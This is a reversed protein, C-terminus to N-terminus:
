YVSYNYLFNDDSGVILHFNGQGSDLFGITFLSRGRLPFGDYIEGDSNFLYIISQDKSVVGIKRDDGSFYYYAPPHSVPMQFDHGFILSGDRSYVELRDNDLFIYDKYGDATVDQFEFFHGPSFDSISLPSTKGDLYLHWVTGTTDTVTLRPDSEPTRGEFIINNRVSVPFFTDPTVRTNGRRDTIYVRQRDAFVIYDRGDVRFYGIERHVHHDTGPFGWGSVINGEKSRVEVSKDECAVFIRYNGDNEYDFLSIGNTAPSPLSVPYRDVDNGHRDLLFIRDKTNFLMQLRSNNYYDIQYVDSMIRGSLPKKWLIRGASNILYINNNIDQVFIENEGTNHNILLAPKFDTVTDLLTQWETRPEEIVEPSYTLFLNNYVMERGSSFQLSFAQFKKFLDLNLEMNSSLSDNLMTTFLGASRSVNSYFYFNNRSVLYDSFERFRADATLTQNLVNAHIFESLGKVSPGFVLYNGIFSFYSTKAPGFMRGFLLEGARSFPFSYIDFSTERDVNYVHRYSSDDDGTLEAHHELLDNMIAESMSRGATKFVLFSEGSQGPDEWGTMVMAVEEEMFAHFTEVPDSGTLSIFSNKLKNHDGLRGTNELWQLYNEHFAEKDSLGLALFASSFGPVVSEIEMQVPLQGTFVNLYNDEARETASFGNLLLADERIHLDLEAWNGLEQLEAMFSSTKGKTLVSIFRPLLELNIFINAEVDSGTTSLVKQFSSDGTVNSGSGLQILANEILLPSFSFIFIGNVITYCFYRNVGDLQVPTEFIRQREYTRESVPYGSLIEAMLENVASIEAASSLGAYFVAEYNEKGAPHFSFYLSKEEILEPVGPYHDIVSDMFEVQRILLSGELVMGLDSWLAKGEDLASMFDPLTGTKVILAADEAVATLPDTGSIYYREIDFYVYIIFGVAAGVLTILIIRKFMIRCLNILIQLIISYYAKTLTCSFNIILM